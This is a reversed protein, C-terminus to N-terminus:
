SDTVFSWTLAKPHGAYKGRVVVGNVPEGLNLLPLSAYPSKPGPPIMAACITTAADRVCTHRFSLSTLLGNVPVSAGVGLASVQAASTRTGAVTGPAGSGSCGVLGFGVGAVAVGALGRRVEVGWTKGVVAGGDRWSGM